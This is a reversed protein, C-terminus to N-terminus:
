FVNECMATLNIYVKLCFDEFEDIYSYLPLIDGCLISVIIM